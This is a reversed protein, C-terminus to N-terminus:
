NNQLLESVTVFEYGFGEIYEILYPLLEVTNSRDGGGDHLLIIAGPHLLRKVRALMIDPTNIEENWDRTDLSWNVFRYNKDNFYSLQSDTIYGYPPRIVDPKYGIQNEIVDNTTEIEKIVQNLSVESFNAHSYSHNAVEHGNNHIEKLIDPHHRVQSGLVFFTASVKYHNLVELIDITHHPSPGDDFSIAVKPQLGGQLYFIDSYERAQRKVRNVYKNEEKKPMIAENDMNEESSSSLDEGNSDSNQYVNNTIENEEITEINDDPEISSDNHNDNNDKSFDLNYVSMEAEQFRQYKYAQIFYTTTASIFITLIFIILVLIIQNKKM